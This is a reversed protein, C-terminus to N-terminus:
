YQLCMPNDTYRGMEWIQSSFRREINRSRLLVPKILAPGCSWMSEVRVGGMGRKRASGMPIIHKYSNFIESCWRTSSVHVHLRAAEHQGAGRVNVSEDKARNFSAFGLNVQCSPLCPKMRPPTLLCAIDLLDQRTRLM